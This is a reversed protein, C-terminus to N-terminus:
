VDVKFLLDHKRKRLNHATPSAQCTHAKPEVYSGLRDGRAASRPSQKMPRPDRKRLLSTPGLTEADPRNATEPLSALRMDLWILPRKGACVMSTASLRASM